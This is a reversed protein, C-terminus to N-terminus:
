VQQDVIKRVDHFFFGFRINIYYINNSVYRIFRISFIISGYFWIVKNIIEIGLYIEIKIIIYYRINKQIRDTTSM